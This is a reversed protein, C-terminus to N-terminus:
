SYAKRSAEKILLLLIPGYYYQDMRRMNKYSDILKTLVSVDLTKNNIYDRVLIEIASIGMTGEETDDYFYKSFIYYGDKHVNYILPVSSGPISIVEQEPRLFSHGRSQTVELSVDETKLSRQNKLTATFDPDNPYVIYDMDYYYPGLIYNNEGSANSKVFAIRKNCQELEVANRSILVDYINTQEAFISPANPARLVGLMNNHETPDIIKFLFEVANYDYIKKSQGPLLMMKNAKSYFISMYYNLLDTYSKKLNLLQAYESPAVLPNTGEAIRHKLFNYEKAVKSTLSKYLNPINIANGIVFYEIEYVTDNSTSAVTVGSVKFITITKDMTETIFHDDVNPVVSSYMHATGTTKMTATDPDYSDSLPSTVRLELNNIRIYSQHGGDALTDIAKLESNKGVVQSYYDVTWPAGEVYAIMSKYPKDTEEYVATKYVEPQVVPKNIPAPKPVTPKRGILAM